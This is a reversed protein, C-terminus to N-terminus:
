ILLLFFWLNYFKSVGLAHLSYKLLSVHGGFHDNHFIDAVPPWVCKFIKGTTVSVPVLVNALQLKFYLINIRSTPRLLTM